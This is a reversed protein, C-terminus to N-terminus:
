EQGELVDLIQNTKRQFEAVASFGLCLVILAVLWGFRVSVLGVGILFSWMPYEGAELRNVKRGDARSM